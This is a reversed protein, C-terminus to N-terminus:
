VNHGHIPAEGAQENVLRSVQGCGGAQDAKELEPGRDHFWGRGRRVLNARTM